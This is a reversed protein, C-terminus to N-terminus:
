VERRYLYVAELTPGLAYIAQCADAQRSDLLKRNTRDAKPHLYANGLDRLNELNPRMSPILNAYEEIMDSLRKNRKKGDRDAPWQTAVGLRSANDLLGYELTARCLSTVSIWCGFVFTRYIEELRFRIPGPLVLNVRGVRVPSLTLAREKWADPDFQILRSELLEDADDPSFHDEFPHDENREMLNRVQDVGEVFTAFLKKGGHQLSRYLFERLIQGEPDLHDLASWIEHELPMVKDRLDGLLPGPVYDQVQGQTYVQRSQHTRLRDIAALVEESKQIYASREENTPTWRSVGSPACLHNLVGVAAVAQSLEVHLEM